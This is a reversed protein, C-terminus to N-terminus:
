KAPTEPAVGSSATTAAFDVCLYVNEFLHIKRPYAFSIVVEPGDRTIDIDGMTTADINNVEIQKQWARGIEINSTAGSAKVKFIADKLTFYEMYAPVIKMAGVAGLVIIMCIFFIGLFGMGRQKRMVGGAKV